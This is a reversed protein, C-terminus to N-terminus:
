GFENTDRNAIHWAAVVKVTGSMYGQKTMSAVLYTAIFSPGTSRDV